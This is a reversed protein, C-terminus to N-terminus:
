STIAVKLMEHKFTIFALAQHEYVFILPKLEIHFGHFSNKRSCHMHFGLNFHPM